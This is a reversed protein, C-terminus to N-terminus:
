NDSEASQYGASNTFTSVLSQSSKTVRTFVLQANGKRSFFDLSSFYFIFIKQSDLTTSKTLVTGAVGYAYIKCVFLLRVSLKEM